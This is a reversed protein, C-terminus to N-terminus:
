KATRARLVHLPTTRGSLNSSGAKQNGGCASEIWSFARGVTCAAQTRGARAGDEFIARPAHSGSQTPYEERHALKWPGRNKTSKTIGNNHQGVRQTLDSTHGIYRRGTAESQLVYVFYMSLLPAGPSIRVGPRRTRLLFSRNQSCQKHGNRVPRTQDGYTFTM